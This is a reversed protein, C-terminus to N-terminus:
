CRLASMWSNVCGRQGDFAVACWRIEDRDAGSDRARQRELQGTLEADGCSSNGPRRTIWDKRSCAGIVFM